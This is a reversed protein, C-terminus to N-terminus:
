EKEGTLKMYSNIVHEKCKRISNNENCAPCYDYGCDCEFTENEMNNLITKLLEKLEEESFLKEKWFPKEAESEDISMELNCNTFKEIECLIDLKTKM